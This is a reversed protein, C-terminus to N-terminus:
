INREIWQRMSQIIISVSTAGADQYGVAREGLSKARGFKATYNKTNEVGEAAKKEAEKLGELLTKNNSVSQQLSVVAPEFADIMTKDGLEAKGRKKIAALADTFITSLFPLSLNTEQPLKAVKGIFMTGFIVGSAGGMSSIMAMGIESFVANVTKFSGSNLKNVAAEFGIAMGIGHDGDGIASDIETLYPKSNIVQEAVYKFMEVTQEISLQTETQNVM